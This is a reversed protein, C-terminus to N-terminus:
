NPFNLKRLLATYRPDHVLSRLLPDSKIYALNHDRRTYAKELWQLATDNQGRFAYVDAISMPADDAHETTLRALAVDADRSKRLAHYALALGALQDAPDSAKKVESLAAEAKGQLLLALGLNYEGGTYTPSIELARRCAQEAEALRGLIPYLYCAWEYISPHLPDLSRAADLFREAQTWQGVILRGDAAYVLVNPNSPALAVATNLEREAASWDWEFYFANALAAHAIASNQDLRLTAQAAERVQRWGAQEPVLAFGATLM